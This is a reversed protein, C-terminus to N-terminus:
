FRDGYDGHNAAELKPYLQAESNEDGRRAFAQKNYHPQRTAM